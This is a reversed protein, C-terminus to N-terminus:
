RPQNKIKKKPTFKCVELWIPDKSLLLQDMMLRMRHTYAREPKYIPGEKGKAQSIIGNRILLHLIDRTLHQDYDQGFGSKYLANEKRASGKQFFIRQIISLLIVNAIPLNSEKIRSINSLANYSSVECRQDIWSPLGKEAAIGNVTSIQCDRISVSSISDVPESSINLIEIFSNKIQLNSIQRTGITFKYIECGDLIINNCDLSQGKIESLVSLLESYAQLNKNQLVTLASIFLGESKRMQMYELMLNIGLSRLSNLWREGNTLSNTEIDLILAEARLGDAIYEDVFQREPSEQSIRGLSCLRMLMHEGTEDPTNTTVFEYADRIEKLSFRGNVDSGITGHIRAERECIASIFYRWVIFDNDEDVIASLDPAVSALVQFVLPKHPLWQPMKIKMKLNKMYEAAEDDTFEDKCRIIIAKLDCSLGLSELIEDDKDFYHARTTLLIGAKSSQVLNKVGILANKRINKRNEGSGGFVQAGVEDVGDLLLIAGGANILQTANDSCDNLGLGALHGAIIGQATKAGWHEKLDIAFVCQKKLATIKQFITEVCRSKGTGYDGILVIKYGGHLLKIIEEINVDQSNLIYKVPIYKSLDKEGSFPNLSSGFPQANRLEVYSSFNFFLLFFDNLSLVRVHNAQGTEIMSRTPAEEFVIFGRCVIGSDICSRRYSDIKSIDSRVKDLSENKSIEILIIEEASPRLVADFDIGGLHEPVAICKWRLAAISRVKDELKQWSYTM